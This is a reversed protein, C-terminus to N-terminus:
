DFYIRYHMGGLELAFCHSSRTAAADGAALVKVEKM